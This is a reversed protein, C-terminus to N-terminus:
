RTRSALAQKARARALARDRQRAAEDDTIPAALAQRYEEAAAEYDLQDAPVVDGALVTLRNDKMQALGGDLFFIKRGGDPLDLRLPGVGLKVLLPARGTCIGLLGDHAPLIAQVVRGDFVQHEPTVVSCQFAM